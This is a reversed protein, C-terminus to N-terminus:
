NYGHPPSPNTSFESDSYLNTDLDSENKNIFQIFVKYQIRNTAHDRNPIFLLNAQRKLSDSKIKAVIKKVAEKSLLQNGVYTNAGISVNTKGKPQLKVDPNPSYYISDSKTKQTIWGNLSVTSDGFFYDFIFSKGKADEFVKASVVLSDLYVVPILNSAGENQTMSSIGSSDAKDASTQGSQCAVFMFSFLLCFALVRVPTFQTM